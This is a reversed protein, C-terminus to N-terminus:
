PLQEWVPGKATYMEDRDNVYVTDAPDVHNNEDTDSRWTLVLAVVAVIAFFASNFTLALIAFVMGFMYARGIMIQPIM